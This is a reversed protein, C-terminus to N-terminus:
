FAAVEFYQSFGSTPHCHINKQLFIFLYIQNNNILSKILAFNIVSRTEMFKFKKKSRNIVVYVCVSHPSTGKM